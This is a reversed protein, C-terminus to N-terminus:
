HVATGLSAHLLKLVNDYSKPLAVLVTKHEAFIGREVVAPAPAVVGGRASNGTEVSSKMMQRKKCASGVVVRKISGYGFSM